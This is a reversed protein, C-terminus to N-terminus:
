HRLYLLRELLANRRFSLPAEASEEPNRKPQVYMELLIMSFLGASLAPDCLRRMVQGKKRADASFSVLLRECVDVRQARLFAWRHNRPVPHLLMDRVSNVFQQIRMLQVVGNVEQNLLGLKTAKESSPMPRLLNALCRILIDYSLCTVRSLCHLPM